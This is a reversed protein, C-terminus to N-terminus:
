KGKFAAVVEGFYLTHPTIAGSGASHIIRCAWSAAAGKIVPVKMGDVPVLEAGTRAVKDVDRGSCSGCTDLMGDVVGGVNLSFEKVGSEIMQHSYRDPHVAITIVHRGWLIGISKWGITILNNKGRADQCVVVCDDSVVRCAEDDWRAPEMRTGM